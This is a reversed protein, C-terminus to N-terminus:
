NIILIFILMELGLIFKHLYWKNHKYNPHPCDGSEEAGYTHVVRGRGQQCGDPMHWEMARTVSRAEKAAEPKSHIFNNLGKRFCTKMQMDRVKWSSLIRQLVM